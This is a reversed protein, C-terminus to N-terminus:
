ESITLYFTYIISSDLIKDVFNQGLSSAEQAGLTRVPMM